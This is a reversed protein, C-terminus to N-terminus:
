SDTKMFKATKTRANYFSKIGYVGKCIKRSQKKISSVAAANPINVAEFAGGIKLSALKAVVVSYNGNRSDFDEPKIDRIIIIEENNM